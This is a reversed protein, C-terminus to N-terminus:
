RALWRIYAKTKAEVQLSQEELAKAVKTSISWSLKPMTILDFWTPQNCRELGLFDWISCARCLQPAFPILITHMQIWTKSIAVSASVSTVTLTDVQALVGRWTADPAPYGESIALATLWVKM